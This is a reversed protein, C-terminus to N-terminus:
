FWSKYFVVSDRVDVLIQNATM